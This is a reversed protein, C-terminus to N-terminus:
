LKLFQKFMIEKFTDLNLRIIKKTFDDSFPGAFHPTNTDFYQGLNETM